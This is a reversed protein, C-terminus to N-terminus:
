ASIKENPAGGLTQEADMMRVKFGLDGFVHQLTEVLEDGDAWICRRIGSDAQESATALEMKVREQATGLQDIQDAIAAVRQALLAERHTYWDSPRGLRPPAQPVSVPDVEHVEALFASM